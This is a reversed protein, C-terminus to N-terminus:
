RWDELEARLKVLAKQELKLLWQKSIGLQKALKARTVPPDQLYRARLIVKTREDLTESMTAHLLTHLRAKDIEGVFDPEEGPLASEVGEMSTDQIHMTRAKHAASYKSKNYRLTTGSVISRNQGLFYRMRSRAWHAAYTSFRLGHKADYRDLATMVGIMGCSVLDEYIDRSSYRNYMSALKKIMRSQGVILEDRAKRDGARHLELLGIEKDKTM